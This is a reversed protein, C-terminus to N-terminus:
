IINTTPKTNKKARLKKKRKYKDHVCACFIRKLSRQHFFEGIALWLPLTLPYGRVSLDLSRLSSLIQKDM